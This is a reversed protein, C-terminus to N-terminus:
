NSDGYQKNPTNLFEHRSYATITGTATKFIRLIKCAAAPSCQESQKIQDALALGGMVNVLIGGISDTKVSSPM